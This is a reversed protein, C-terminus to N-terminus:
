PLMEWNEIQRQFIPLHRTWGRSQSRQLDGHPQSIQPAWRATKQSRARGPRPAPYRQPPWTRWCSQTWPPTPQPECPDLLLQCWLQDIHCSLVQGNDTSVECSLPWDGLPCLGPALRPWQHLKECRDPGGPLVGM